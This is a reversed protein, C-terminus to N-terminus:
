KEEECNCGALASAIDARFNDFQDEGKSVVDLARLLEHLEKHDFAKIDYGVVPIIIRRGSKFSIPVTPCDETTFVGKYSQKQDLLGIMDLGTGRSGGSMSVLVNYNNILANINLVPTEKKDVSDKVGQLQVKMQKLILDFKSQHKKGNEFVVLRDKCKEINPSHNLSLNLQHTTDEFHCNHEDVMSRLDAYNVRGSEIMGIIAGVLDNSTKMLEFVNQKFKEDIKKSILTNQNIGDVVIAFFKPDELLLKVFDSVAATLFNKHQSISQECRLNFELKNHKPLCLRRIPDFIGNDILYSQLLKNGVSPKNVEQQKMDNGMSHFIHNKGESTKSLLEPKKYKALGEISISSNQQIKSWLGMELIVRNVLEITTSGSSPQGIEYGVLQKIWERVSNEAGLATVNAIAAKFNTIKKETAPADICGDDDVEDSLRRISLETVLPDHILNEITFPDLWRSSVIGCIDSIIVNIRKRGSAHTEYFFGILSYLQKTVSLVFHNVPDEKRVFVLGVGTIKKPDITPPGLKSPGGDSSFHHKSEM